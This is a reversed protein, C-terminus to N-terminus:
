CGNGWPRLGERHNRIVSRSKWALRGAKYAVAVRRWFVSQEGRADLWRTVVHYGLSYLANVGYVEGESPQEGILARTPFGSERYCAERAVHITQATDVLTLMHYAKEHGPMTGCGSLFVALLLVGFRM